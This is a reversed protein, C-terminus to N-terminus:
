ESECYRQNRDIDAKGSLPRESAEFDVFDFTRKRGIASARVPAGLQQSGTEGSLLLTRQYASMGVSESAAPGLVHRSLDGNVVFLRLVGQGLLNDVRDAM